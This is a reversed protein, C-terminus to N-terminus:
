PRRMARQPLRCVETLFEPAEVFHIGGGAEVM